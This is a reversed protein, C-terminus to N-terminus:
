PSVNPFVKIGVGLEVSAVLALLRAGPHAKGYLTPGLTDGQAQRLTEGLYAM